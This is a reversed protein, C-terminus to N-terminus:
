EHSIGRNTSPVVLSIRKGKGEEIIPAYSDLAHEVVESITFGEMAGRVKARKVLEPNIFATLRQKKDNKM